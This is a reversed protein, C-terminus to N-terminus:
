DCFPDLGRCMSRSHTYRTTRWGTKELILGQIPLSLPLFRNEGVLDAATEMDTPSGTYVETEKMRESYYPCPARATYDRVQYGHSEQERKEVSVASKLLGPSLMRRSRHVFRSSSPHAPWCFRRDRGTLFTYATRSNRPLDLGIYQLRRPKQYEFNTHCTVKRRYVISTLPGHIQLQLQGTGTLRTLPTNSPKPPSSRAHGYFAKTSV